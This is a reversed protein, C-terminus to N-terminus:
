LPKKFKLTMRNSEGIAKRAEMTEASGRLSPALRWVIDGEKAQDLENANIDSEEVFEFGAKEMREILFSKKLYGASGAAWEDSRDERAQHQVVGVIGGPKLVKYSAALANDLSGIDNNFRALNHLARIFM